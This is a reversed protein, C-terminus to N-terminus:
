HTWYWFLLLIVVVMLGGKGSNEGLWKEIKFDQDWFKHEIAWGWLWKLLGALLVFMIIRPATEKAHEFLSEFLDMM